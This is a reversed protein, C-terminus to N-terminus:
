LQKFTMKMICQLNKLPYGLWQPFYSGRAVEVAWQWVTDTKLKIKTVREKKKKERCKTTHAAQFMNASKSEYLKRKDLYKLFQVIKM